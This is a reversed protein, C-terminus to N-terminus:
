TANDYTRTRCKSNCGSSCKNHIYQIYKSLYSFLLVNRIPINSLIMISAIPQVLLLLQAFISFINNYFHNNINKWIFFEILQMFIVSAIFIYVYKNNLDQVKYKTFSNNYIILALTFGSFLFTNLSVQENWCM